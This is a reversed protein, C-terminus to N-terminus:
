RQREKEYEGEKEERERGGRKRETERDIENERDWIRDTNENKRSELEREWRMKLGGRDGTGRGGNSREETYGKERTRGGRKERHRQIEGRGKGEM